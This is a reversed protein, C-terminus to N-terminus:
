QASQSAGKCPLDGVRADKREVLSREWNDLQKSIDGLMEIFAIYRRDPLDGLESLLRLCVEIESLSDKASSICHLKDKTRNAKLLTVTMALSSRRVDEGLSYKYKKPLLACMRTLELALKFSAGYVPLVTREGLDPIQREYKRAISEKANQKWEDFEASVPKISSSASAEVVGDPRVFSSPFWKSLSSQPFGASVLWDGVTGVYRGSLKFDHVENCMRCASVEYAKYFTGEPYLVIKDANLRERDYIEKKTM